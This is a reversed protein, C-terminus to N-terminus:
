KTDRQQQTFTRLIAYPTEVKIIAEQVTVERKPSPECFRM